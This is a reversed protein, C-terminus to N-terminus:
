NGWSHKSVLEPPFVHCTSTKNHNVSVALSPGTTDTGERSFLARIQPWVLEKRSSHQQCSPLNSGAAQAVLLAQTSGSQPVRPVSVPDGGESTGKPRGLKLSALLAAHRDGKCGGSSLQCRTHPLLYPQSRLSATKLCLMEEALGPPSCTRARGWATGNPARPSPPEENRQQKTTYLDQM